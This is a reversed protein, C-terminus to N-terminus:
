ACYNADLIVARLSKEYAITKLIILNILPKDLLIIIHILCDELRQFYYTFIHM